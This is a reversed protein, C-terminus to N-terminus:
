TCRQGRANSYMNRVTIAFHALVGMKNSVSMAKLELAKCTHHSGIKLCPSINVLLNFLGNFFYPGFFTSM